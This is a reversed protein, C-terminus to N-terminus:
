VIATYAFEMGLKPVQPSAGFSIHQGGVTFWLEEGLQEVFIVSFTLLTIFHTVFKMELQMPTPCM